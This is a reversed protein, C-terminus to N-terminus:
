DLGRRTLEDEDWGFFHGLEHLYTIRVERRFNKENAEAFLWLNELFLIIQAPLAGMDDIEEDYPAGTFLGLLDPDANEEIEDPSAACIVPLREAMGRLGAPLQDLCALIEAEAWNELSSLTPMAFHVFPM